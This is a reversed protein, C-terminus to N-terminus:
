RPQWDPRPLFTYDATTNIVGDPVTHLGGAHFDAYLLNAVTSGRGFWRMGRNGAQQFNYITHTGLLWTKTPTVIPPMRGGQPPVLTWSQEGDLAHGNLTYSSGLFDYMSAVPGIFPINAGTDGPSQFIRLEVTGPDVDPPVAGDHVYRNLPRREAGFENIGFAPLTGKKGGFLSGIVSRQGGGVDALIQPLAGRSDELYQSLGIGLQQLRSQCAVGRAAWRAGSLGPLLLGVLMAIIAIVVLLEILTFARHRSM